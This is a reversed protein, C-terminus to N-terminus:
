QSMGNQEKKVVVVEWGWGDTPRTDCYEDASTHQWNCFPSCEM